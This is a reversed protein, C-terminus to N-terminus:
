IKKKKWEKIMAWFIPVLTLLFLFGVVPMVYKHIGPLQSGFFYGVSVVITPWLISGLINFKLFAPFDMEGVGALIPAFTRAFPVFRALVVTWKGYKKYFVRTRELNRPDFLFSGKKFFIAHGVRKGFLYGVIGGAYTSIILGVLSIWINLTGGSALFGVTFLLTDGPLFFGFFFGSEIFINSFIGVYGFSHILFEPNLINYM